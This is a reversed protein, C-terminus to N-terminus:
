SADEGQLAEILGRVKSAVVRYAAEYAKKRQEDSVDTEGRGLGPAAVNWEFAITRFPVRDLYDGVAGEVCILVYFDAWADRVTELGRPGEPPLSHGREEMFERFAPDFESAPTRGATYFRGGEPYGKAAIGMAMPGLESNAEDLFLIRYLTPSKTEGTKAFVTDECINIAQDGVRELMNFIVLTAFEDRESRVNAESQRLLEAFGAAFSREVIDGQMTAKALEANSEDFARLAQHFMHRVNKGMREVERKVNPELPAGLQAAERCITTAYDGVRELEVNMRLVSSIFRLHGASPLHRAVFYHCHRDLRAIARNVRKDGLITEYALSRDLTLVAQLADRLATEVWQGVEGVELRIRVLDQELRQEYHGM